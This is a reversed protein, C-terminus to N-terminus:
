PIDVVRPTVFPRAPANRDAASERSAAAGAPQLAELLKNTHQAERILERLLPKTGFLAFPLLLWSIAIALGLLALCVYFWALVHADM